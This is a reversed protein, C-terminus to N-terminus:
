CLKETEEATQENLHSVAGFVDKPKWLRVYVLWNHLRVMDFSRYKRRLHFGYVFECFYVCRSYIYVCVCLWPVAHVTCLHVPRGMCSCGLIKHVTHVYKYVCLGSTQIRTYLLIFIFTVLAIWFSLWACVAALCFCCFQTNTYFTFTIQKHSSDIHILCAHNFFIVVSVVVVVIVATIVATATVATIIATAIIAVCQQARESEGEGEKNRKRGSGRERVKTAM